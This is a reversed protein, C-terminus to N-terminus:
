EVLKYRFSAVVHLRSLDYIKLLSEYPAASKVASLAGEDLLTSGSSSLLRIDAVSGDANISIRVSVIGEQNKEYAIPPYQWNLSIKKRVKNLYSAYRTDTSGLDVTDERWSDSESPNTERAEHKKKVDKNKEEKKPSQEPEPEKLDVTFIERPKVNDRLDIMSSVSILAVHGIISIIVPLLFTKKSDM